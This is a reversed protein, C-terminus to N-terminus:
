LILDSSDCTTLGNELFIRCFSKSIRIKISYPESDNGMEYLLVFKIGFLLSVRDLLWFLHLVPDLM